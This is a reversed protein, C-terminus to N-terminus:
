PHRDGARKEGALGENQGPIGSRADLSDTAPPHSGLARVLNMFCPRASRSMSLAQMLGGGTPRDGHSRRLRRNGTSGGRKPSARLARRYAWRSCVRRRDSPSGGLCRSRCHCLRRERRSQRDRGACDQARQNASSGPATESGLVALLMIGQAAGFYGGYIGTGLVAARTAPRKERDQRNSQGYRQALRTQFFILVVAVAVFLPVIAQFAEDPALLLAGAGILGGLLSMLGLGLVRSRQGSLERRYGIAGSVSGPVLGLTSSVNATVPAYGLAVLLPFTILTGSGVVTNIAGALVGAGFIAMTEAVTM